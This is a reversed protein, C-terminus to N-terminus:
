DIRSKLFKSCQENTKDLDMLSRVFGLCSINKNSLELWVKDFSAFFLKESYSEFDSTEKMFIVVSDRMLM